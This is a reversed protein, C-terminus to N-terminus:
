AARWYGHTSYGQDDVGLWWVRGAIVARNYALLHVACYGWWSPRREWARYNFIGRNLEGIPPHGCIRRSRDLGLRVDDVTSSRYARCRAAREAPARWESAPEDHAGKGRVPTVPEM